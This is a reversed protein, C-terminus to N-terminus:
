VRKRSTETRQMLNYHVRNRNVFVIYYPALGVDSPRGSITLFCKKWFVYEINEYNGVRM